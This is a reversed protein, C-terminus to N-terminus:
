VEDNNEDLSRLYDVFKSLRSSRSNKSNSGSGSGHRTHSRFGGRGWTLKRPKSLHRTSIGRNERMIDVDSDIFGGDPSAMSSSSPQSPRVRTRRKRRRQRVEASREDTSSSDKEGNNENEEENDESGQLDIGHNQRRPHSNRQNRQSRTM